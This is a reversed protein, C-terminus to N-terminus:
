IFLLLIFLHKLAVLARHILNYVSQRSLSMLNGIEDYSMEEYYKLFLAERQRKSLLDLKSLVMNRKEQVIQENILETEFPTEYLINEQAELEDLFLNNKNYDSTRLLKRRLSKLLYFKISGTPSLHERRKWLDIFLEQISDKVLAEDPTIRYGYKYLVKIHLDFIIMLSKECGGRFREWLEEDKVKQDGQKRVKIESKLIKDKDSHM